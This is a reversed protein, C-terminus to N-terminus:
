QTPRAFIAGILLLVAAVVIVLSLSGFFRMTLGGGILLIGSVIALTQRPNYGCNPCERRDTSIRTGCKRCTDTDM